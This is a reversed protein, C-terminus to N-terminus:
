RSENCLYIETAIPVLNTSAIACFHIWISDNTRCFLPWYETVKVPLDFTEWLGQINRTTPKDTHCHGWHRLQNTLCLVSLCISLHVGMYFRMKTYVADPKPYSCAVLYLAYFTSHNQVMGFKGSFVEQELLLDVSEKNEENFHQQQIGKQLTHKSEEPVVETNVEVQKFYLHLIVEEAGKSLVGKCGM